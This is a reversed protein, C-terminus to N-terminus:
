KTTGHEGVWIWTFSGEGVYGGLFLLIGGPLTVDEEYKDALKGEVQNELWTLETQDACFGIYFLQQKMM